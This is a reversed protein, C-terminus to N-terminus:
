ADESAGKWNSHSPLFKWLVECKDRMCSARSCFLTDTSSGCRYSNHLTQWFKEILQKAQGRHKNKSVRLVDLDSTGAPISSTSLVDKSLQQAHGPPRQADWDMELLCIDHIWM